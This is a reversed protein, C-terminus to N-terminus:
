LAPRSFLFYPAESLVFESPPQPGRASLFSCVRGVFDDRDSVRIWRVRSSEGRDCGLGVGGAQLLRDTWSSVFHGNVSTSFRDGKVSMQVEYLTDNRVPFPLPIRTKPGEQGNAVVYQVLDVMPLPGPKAVVLKAAYYNSEDSARFVWGLSKREIQGLFELRYDKLKMSERWFGLKGPRLFGAQDYSWDKSWGSPGEWGSLGARFDDEIRLVARSRLMNRLGDWKLGSAMGTGGGANPLTLFLIGAALLFVMSIAGFLAPASPVAHIMVEHWPPKASARRGRGSPEEFLDDDDYRKTRAVRTSPAPRTAAISLWKQSQSQAAGKDLINDVPLTGEFLSAPSLVPDAGLRASPMDAAALWRRSQAPQIKTEALGAITIQPPRLQVESKLEFVPGTHEKWPRFDSVDTMPIMQGPRAWVAAVLPALSLHSDSRGAAYSWPLILGSQPLRKQVQVEVLKPMALKAAFMPQSDSQIAVATVSAAPELGAAPALSLAPASLPVTATTHLEVHREVTVMPDFFGRTRARAFPVQVDDPCHKAWLPPSPNFTGASLKSSSTNCALRFTRAPQDLGMPAPIEMEGVVAELAAACALRPQPRVMPSVRGPGLLESSSFRPEFYGRPQATLGVPEILEQFFQPFLRTPAPHYLPLMPKGTKAEMLRALGLESQELIFQSRHEQCCFDGLSLKRFIGLKQGCQLCKM